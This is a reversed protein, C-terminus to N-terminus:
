WLAACATLVPAAVAADLWLSYGRGEPPLAAALVFLLGVAAADVVVLPPAAYRVLVAEGVLAAGVHALAVARLRRWPWRLAFTAMGARADGVRDPWDTLLANAVVALTRIGFLLAAAATPAAGAELLPLGVAGLGWGVGIAFPKVTGVDKLRRGGPLLPMIYALSLSGLLLGGAWTTWELLPVCGAAGLGFATALWQRRRWWAARVPRNLADEVGGAARDLGYVAATGLFAAVVLPVDFPLALLAQTALILSVAVAGEVVGAHLAAAHM